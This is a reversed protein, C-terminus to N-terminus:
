RGEHAPTAPHRASRECWRTLEIGFGELESRFGRLRAVFHNYAMVAPIAAALGAATAILAESIGPAVTALSASGAAGIGQFANMIGWVTGFLGIFPAVSGTTALLGLRKELRAVEFITAQRLVREMETADPATTHGAGGSAARLEAAAARVLGALPSSPNADALTRLESPRAAQRLGRQLRFSQRMARRYLGTREAIVAWSVVSFLLLVALVGQVVPGSQLILHLAGGGVGRGDNPAQL